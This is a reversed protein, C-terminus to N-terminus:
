KKYILHKTDTTPSASLLRYSHWIYVGKMIARNKVQKSFIRDFTHTKEVFKIREWVSKRFLMFFGAIISNTQYCEGYYGNHLQNAIAMHYRMDSNDSIKGEFLQEKVNVRNTICGYLDYAGIKTIDEIQKKTDPLLFCTDLDTICIWETDCSAIRLNYEKGINKDSAYPQIYSIM